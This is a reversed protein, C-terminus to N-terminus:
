LCGLRGETEAIQILFDSFSNALKTWNRIDDERLAFPHPVESHGPGLAFISQPAVIGATDLIFDVNGRAESSLSLYGIHISKKPLEPLYNLAIIDGYWHLAMPGLGYLGLQYNETKIILGGSYELFFVYNKPLQYPAVMETLQIVGERSDKIILRVIESSPAEGTKLLLQESVAGNGQRFNRDVLAWPIMVIQNLAEIIEKM